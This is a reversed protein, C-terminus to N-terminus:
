AYTYTYMEFLLMYIYQVKLLAYIEISDPDVGHAVKLM